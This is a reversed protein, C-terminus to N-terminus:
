RKLITLIQIWILYKSGSRYWFSFDTWPRHRLSFYSRSGYWVPRSESCQMYEYLETYQFYRPSINASTRQTFFYSFSLLFFPSIHFFFFSFLFFFLNYFIFPYVFAFYLLILYLPSNTTSFQCMGLHPSRKPGFYLGRWLEYVLTHYFLCARM